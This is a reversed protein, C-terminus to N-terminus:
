IARFIAGQFDDIISIDLSSFNVGHSTMLRLQVIPHCLDLASAM